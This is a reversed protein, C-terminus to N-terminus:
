AIEPNFEKVPHKLNPSAKGPNSMQEVMAQKALVGSNANPDTNKLMLANKTQELENQLDPNPPVIEREEEALRIDDGYNEGSFRSAAVESPDLVGATIYGTDTEMHLKRINAKDIDDMQWLPKFEVDADEIDQGNTPGKKSLLVVKLLQMLQPYLHDEQFAAVSDYWTNEEHEGTAGLGQASEGLLVTHPMGSATVLRGNVTELVDKIGALSCTQQEHSEDEDLVITKAISKGMNVLTLRQMVQSDDGDAIMNSLNKIKMVATRFDQIVSAVSDHSTNYNRIPVQVRNLVSDSWYNNQIFLIRPLPSGDFRIVRTHHIEFSITAADGQGRLSLGYVEPLGYNPQRPDGQIRMPLLEWRSVLTLSSVRNVKTADLPQSLDISDDTGILLAAGGYLRAWKSAESFKKRADLDDFAKLVKQEQDKDDCGILGIWERVAADPLKDVIRAAIDDGAYLYEADVETIRQWDATANMRKDRDRIGLGTLINIWGDTRFKSKITDIVKAM